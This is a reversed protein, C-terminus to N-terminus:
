PVPQFSLQHLPWVHQHSEPQSHASRGSPPQCRCQCSELLRPSLKHSVCENDTVGVCLQATFGWTVVLIEDKPCMLSVAGADSPKLPSASPAMLVSDPPTTMMVFSSDSSHPHLSCACSASISRSQSSSVMGKTLRNVCRGDTITRRM